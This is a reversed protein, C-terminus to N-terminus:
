QPPEVEFLIFSNGKSYSQAQGRSPNDPIEESLVTVRVAQGAALPGLVLVRVVEECVSVAEALESPTLTKASEPDEGPPIDKWLRLFATRRPDVPESKSEAFM